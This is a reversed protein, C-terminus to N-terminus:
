SWRRAELVKVSLFCWFVAMSGHIVMDRIHLQGKLTDIWLDVFSLHSLITQKTSEPPLSRSILYFAIMTVMGLFTLAAAIIQNKTLTSFFVGMSVFSAGTIALGLYFTLLPRYDFPKGTEIRLAILFVLWVCWVLMYFFLAAFVKSLVIPWEKVPSCMLVEYTGTRKEESILRMTLGPVIAVLAFVGYLTGLYFNLVVPEFNLNGMLPGFHLGFVFESYNFAAVLASILLLAYAIPSYFFSWIERRTMVVIQRDSTYFIGALAYILGIAMLVLGTPVFYPQEHPIVSRLLAIVFVAIGAFLIMQAAPRGEEDAGGLQSVYSSLYALGLLSTVSGYVLAFSAISNGGILGTLALGLGLGGLGRLAWKRHAPETENRGFASLFLMGGVFCAWGYPFFLSAIKREEGEEPTKAYSLLLPMLALVLGCLPLGLGACYGYTRRVTPDTDRVAHFYAMATGLVIMMVGVNKALFQGGRENIVLIVVGLAAAFLGTMGVTRAFSFPDEEVRSPPLERVSSPVSSPVSM